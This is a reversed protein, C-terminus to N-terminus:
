RQFVKQTGKSISGCKTCFACKRSLRRFGSHPNTAVLERQSILVKKIGNQALLDLDFYLHYMFYTPSM